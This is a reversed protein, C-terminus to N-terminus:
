TYRSRQRYRRQDFSDGKQKAAEMLNSYFASLRLHRLTQRYSAMLANSREMNGETASIRAAVYTAIVMDLSYMMHPAIEFYTTGSLPIPSLAKDFTAVRTLADYSTILRDQITDYASETSRLLRFVSGNYAEEHLDRTGVLASVPLTASLGDSAITCTGNCLRAIGSPLSEITIVTNTNLIGSQVHLNNGELWIGRGATNYQGMSEYFTKYGTSELTYIAVITGITSPLMYDETTGDYTVTTRAVVPTQSNRNIEGLIEPYKQEMLAILTTDSYKANLAPEDVQERIKALARTIFSDSTYSTSGLTAVAGIDFTFAEVLATPQFRNAPSTMNFGYGTKRCFVYYYDTGTLHELMFAVTGRSSTFAPQVISTSPDNSVGVWVECEPITTGTTTRITLVIQNNGPGFIGSHSMIEMGIDNLDHASITGDAETTGTLYAATPLKGNIATSHTKITDVNTDITDIKGEVTTIAAEAGDTYGKILGTDVLINATDSLLTTLNTNLTTINIETSGRRAIQTTGSDVAALPFAGTGDFTAAKISADALTMASGVAAPSAPLNDTKDKVAKMASGTGFATVADLGTSVLAYGTKDSVVKADASFNGTGYKADWYQASVVQLSIVIPCHTAHDEIIIKADGLTNTDTTNNALTLTAQGEFNSLTSLTYSALDVMSGDAKVFKARKNSANYGTLDAPPTVPTVGDSPSYFGIGLVKQSATSVKLEQSM